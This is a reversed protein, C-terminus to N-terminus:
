NIEDNIKEGYVRIEHIHETTEAVNVTWYQIESYFGGIDEVTLAVTYNGPEEYIHVPNKLGSTANDGLNWNYAIPTENHGYSGNMLGFGWVDYGGGFLSVPLWTQTISTSTSGSAVPKLNGLQIPLTFATDTVEGSIDRIDVGFTWDGTYPPTFWITEETPISNGATMSFTISDTLTNNVFAEFTVEIIEFFANSTVQM